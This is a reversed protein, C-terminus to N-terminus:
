LQIFATAFNNKDYTWNVKKAKTLYCIVSLLIELQISDEPDSVKFCDTIYLKSSCIITKIINKEIASIGNLDNEM